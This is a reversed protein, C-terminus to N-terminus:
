RQFLLRVGDIFMVVAIILLVWGQVRPPLSVSSCFLEPADDKPTYKKAEHVNM